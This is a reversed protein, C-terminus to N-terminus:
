EHGSLSAWRQFAELQDRVAHCIAYNTTVTSIVEANTAEITSGDAVAAPEAAEPVAGRAAADHIRVGGASLGCERANDTEVYKIVEQTVIREVTERKKARLAVLAAVANAKESNLQEIRRAQATNEAIGELHRAHETALKKGYRWAAVQYGAAFIAVVLLGLGILRANARLSAAHLM